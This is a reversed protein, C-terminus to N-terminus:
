GHQGHGHSHGHGHSGGAGHGVGVAGFRFAGASSVSLSFRGTRGPGYTCPMIVYHCGGNLEYEVTTHPQPVFTSEAVIARKPDGKIEGDPGSARLLYVGLM